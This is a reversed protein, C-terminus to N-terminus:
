QIAPNREVAAAPETQMAQGICLVSGIDSAQCLAACRTSLEQWIGWHPFGREGSRPLLAEDGPRAILKRSGLIPDFGIAEPLPPADLM